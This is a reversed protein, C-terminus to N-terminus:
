RQHAIIVKSGGQDTSGGFISVLQEQRYSFIRRLDPAVLGRMVFAGGWSAFRVRDTVLTGEARAAFVHEHQWVRYPGRRQEDVFRHPPEWATIESQWRLPLGRLRLRYNIRIGEAMTIPQPTLVHFHLWPPTLRELNGADAFFAFVRDLPVPLLVDTLLLYV